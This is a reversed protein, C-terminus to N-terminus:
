AQIEVESLFWAKTSSIRANAAHGTHPPYKILACSTPRPLVQLETVGRVSCLCLKGRSMWCPSQSPILLQHSNRKVLNQVEKDQQLGSRLGRHREELFRIHTGRRCIGCSLEQFLLILEVAKQRAEVHHPKNDIHRGMKQLVNKM